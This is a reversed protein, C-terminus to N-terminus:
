CSTLIRAAQAAKRAVCTQNVSAALSALAALGAVDRMNVLAQYQRDLKVLNNMNVEIIENTAIKGSMIDRM